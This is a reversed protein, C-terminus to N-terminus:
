RNRAYMNVTVPGRRVVVAPQPLRTAQDRAILEETERLHGPTRERDLRGVAQRTRRALPMKPLDGQGFMFHRDVDETWDGRLSVRGVDAPFELKALLHMMWLNLEDGPTILGPLERRAQLFLTLQAPFELLSCVHELDFVSVIWPIEAESVVLGSAVLESRLAVLWSFDELTVVCAEVRGVQALPVNTPAGNAGSFEVQAHDLIAARLRAAQSAGRAILRELEPRLARLRGRRAQDSLRGAKVEIVFAVDDILVVGDIEYLPGGDITFRLNAYREDARVADALAGVVNTEAFRARRQQFAEWEPEDKLAEELAPQIAWLLNLPSTLLYRDDPARVFPRRRIPSLGTLLHAHGVKGFGVSFRALFSRAVEAPLEASAALEDETVSLILEARRQLQFATEQRHATILKITQLMENFRAEVLTTLAEELAVAQSANFGVSRALAAELVQEDFLAALHKKAQHEYGPGRVAADLLQLHAAIRQLPDAASESKSLVTFITGRTVDDAADLARQTAGAARHTQATSMVRLGAPDDRELLTSAVYEMRSSPATKPESYTKAGGFTSFAVIAALTQVADFPALADRIAGKADAIARGSFDVRMPTRALDIEAGGRARVLARHVDAVTPAGLGREPDASGRPPPM